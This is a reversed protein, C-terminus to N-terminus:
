APSFGPRLQKVIEVISKSRDMTYFHLGQVGNEMLDRCQDVANAIGFQAVAEKDGSPLRNLSQRIKEPISAGCLGSLNEMM